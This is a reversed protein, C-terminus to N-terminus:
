IIQGAVSLLPWGSDPIKSLSKLRNTSVLIESLIKVQECSNTAKKETKFDLGENIKIRTPQVQTDLQTPGAAEDIEM